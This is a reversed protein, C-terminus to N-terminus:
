VRKLEEQYELLDKLPWGVARLGIKRPKPLRPDFYKSGSNLKLYLMSNSIGLLKCAAAVRLIQRQEIFPPIAPDLVLEKYAPIAPNAM